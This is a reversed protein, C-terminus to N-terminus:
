LHPAPMHGRGTRGDPAGIRQRPWPCLRTQRERDGKLMATTNEPRLSMGCFVIADAPAVADLRPDALLWDVVEPHGATMAFFLPTRGQVTCLNVDIKPHALLIQVVREFGYKCALQLATLNEHVGSRQNIDIDPNRILIGSLLYPKNQTVAHFVRYLGSM